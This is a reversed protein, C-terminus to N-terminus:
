MECSFIQSRYLDIEDEHASNNELLKKLSETKNQRDMESRSLAPVSFKFSINKEFKSNVNKTSTMPNKEIFVFASWSHRNCISQIRTNWNYEALSVFNNKLIKRIIKRAKKYKPQLMIRLTDRSFGNKFLIMVDESNIIKENLLASLTTPALPIAKVLKLYITNKPIKIEILADGFQESILPDIAAYLGAGANMYNNPMTSPNAYTSIINQFHNEAYAQRDKENQIQWSDNRPLYFYHYVLVDKSMSQIAPKLDKSLAEFALSDAKCDALQVFVLLILSVQLLTRLFVALIM